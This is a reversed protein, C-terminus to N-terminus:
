IQPVAVREKAQRALELVRLGVELWAREIAIRVDVPLADFVSWYAFYRVAGEQRCAIYLAPADELIDEALWRLAGRLLIGELVVERDSIDDIDIPIIKDPPPEFPARM